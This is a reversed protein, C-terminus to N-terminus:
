RSIAGASALEDIKSASLGLQSLVEATHQGPRPAHERLVTPTNMFKTPLGVTRYRGETPHDAYGLLDVAKLHPDEWMEALDNVPAGPINNADCFEVWEKNTFRPAVEAIVSYLFETHAIRGPHTAFRADGILDERAVFRFFDDWNQLSYPLICAYGDKTKFPRRNKALVRKWGFEDLPPDFAFGCLHEVLNFAVASEFMPVEIEQGGRGLSRGLLAALISYVITLGAVKDCIASPVYDPEGRARTFLSPLGSAAQIVDDYAVKDAYPGGRGFGVASCYIIDPRVKSVHAYGLGLRNIAAPRMSHVFVDADAVIDLCIQVAEPNKLNLVVSKKNAHLNLIAGAMNENRAPKVTRMSDVQPSEVKIVEAGLDALIRTAYPGMVVSTLDVIKIGQIPSVM